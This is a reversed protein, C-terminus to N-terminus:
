VLENAIFDDCYEFQRIENSNLDLKGMSIVNVGMSNYTNYYYVLNDLDMCSTYQTIDNHGEITIVSGDVMAVNNLIHFFQQKTINKCNNITADRLVCTRVFRSAPSFDGVLGMLGDGQGHPTLKYNSITTGINPTFQLDAYQSLNILHWDFTPANSLVGVPNKFWKFGDKTQEVIISDGTKDTIIFHLPATPINELIPEDILVIDDIQNKVENLDAFNSVIWLSFDYVPINIKSEVQEKPFKAYKPFNLGAIALGKENMVDAFTPYGAFMTGMGLIAYKNQNTKQNVTNVVTYNRPIFIISQNFSYELDMNRGFLHNNETTTLTLATCM